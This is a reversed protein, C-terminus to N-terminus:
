LYTTYYLKTKLVVFCRRHQQLHAGDGALVDQVDHEGPELQQFVHRREPLVKEESLTPIAIHLGIIFLSSYKCPSMM